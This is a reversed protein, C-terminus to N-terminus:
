THIKTVDLVIKKAKNGILEAVSPNTRGEDGNILEKIYLGSEARIEIRLKKSGLVKWSIKEVRRKRFKDARRHLVRQPTKQLIATEVLKGIEKLKKKDIKKEFDVVAVYTKSIRETKLRRITEKTTFKLGRVKVKKSKNIQKGSKKLDIKRRVPKKIEIVFPRYDLCRADIDERGAGHFSSSKGRTLKLLPKEIIEQVSTPYLKGEGRCKLCGKGGCNKCIWKTQPIGRALKQYRGYIYLSRIEIRLKENKLDVLITVDPNKLEFVAKTNKEISKGIERNIEAKISEFFEIGVDEQLKEEEREMENSPISGILFTKFEVGKLKQIIKESWNDIGELFFNKCIKCREPKKINLKVNRFKIGYFNSLDVDIKEGSDILFAIFYRIINGRQDNSHGSLLNAYARGLCWNCVYGNKLIEIANELIKM